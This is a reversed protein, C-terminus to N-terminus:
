AIDMSQDSFLTKAKFDQSNTWTGHLMMPQHCQTCAAITPDVWTVSIDGTQTESAYRTASHKTHNLSGIRRNITAMTPTMIATHTRLDVAFFSGM